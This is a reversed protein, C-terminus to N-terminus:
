VSTFDLDDLPPMENENIYAEVNDVSEQNLWEHEFMEKASPRTLPNPDLANQLFDKAMTSLIPADPRAKEQQDWFRKWNGDRVCRYYWCKNTATFFPPIGFLTIFITVGMSWVDAAEPNYASSKNVEPAIYQETGCYEICTEQYGTLASGFDALKISYDKNILINEPKIDRHQVGADHCQALAFWLEKAYHSALRDPLGYTFKELIDFYEGRSCHELYLVNSLRGENDINREKYGHLNIVSPLAKLHQLAIRERHFHKQEGQSVKVMKAAVLTPKAPIGKKMTPVMAECVRGTAGHGLSKGYKTRPFDYYCEDVPQENLLLFNHTKQMPMAVSDEMADESISTGLMIPNYFDSM